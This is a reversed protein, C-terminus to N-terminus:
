PRRTARPWSGRASPGRWATSAPTAPRNGPRLLAGPIVQGQLAV